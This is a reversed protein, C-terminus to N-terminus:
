YVNVENGSPAVFLCVNLTNYIVQPWPGGLAYGALPPPPTEEEPVLPLKKHAQAM